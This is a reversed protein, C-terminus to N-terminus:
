QRVDGKIGNLEVSMEFLNIEGESKVNFSATRAKAARIHKQVVEMVDKQLAEMDVGELLNSGRQAALIVSLRERAVSRSSTAAATAANKPTGSILKGINNLFSM